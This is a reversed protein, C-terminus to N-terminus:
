GEELGLVSPLDIDGTYLARGIVVGEVGRDKLERLSRVDEARSIGGAAIVGMGRDLLPEIATRNYGELTGDRSIDTHIVRKSGRELLMQLAEELTIGAKEKWGRVALEGGRTDLSVIIKEGFDDIMEELFSRDTLARTGLVVRYVGLSLLREVDARSRVGGGFQVPISVRDLIFRLATLNRLEGEGAGDLDVVHLCSAGMSEWRRAMEWPNESFVTEQDFLGRRLRVCRGGKIDVAPYIRFM